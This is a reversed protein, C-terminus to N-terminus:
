SPAGRQGTEMQRLRQRLEAVVEGDMATDKYPEIYIGWCCAGPIQRVAVGFRKQLHLKCVLGAWFARRHAVEEHRDVTEVPDAPLGSAAM